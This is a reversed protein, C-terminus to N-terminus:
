AAAAMHVCKPREVARQANCDYVMKGVSIWERGEMASRAQAAAAITVSQDSWRVEAVPTVAAFQDSTTTEHKLPDIVRQRVAGCQRM